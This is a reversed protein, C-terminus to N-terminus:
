DVWDPRQAAVNIKQLKIVPIDRKAMWERIRRRLSLRKAEGPHPRKAWEERYKAMLAPRDVRFPLRGPAPPVVQRLCNERLFKNIKRREEAPNPPENRRRAMPKKAAPRATVPPPRANEKDVAFDSDTSKYPTPSLPIEPELVQDYEDSNLGRYEDEHGSLFDNVLLELKLACKYAV